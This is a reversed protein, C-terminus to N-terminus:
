ELIFYDLWKPNIPFNKIAEEYSLFVNIKNMMDEFAKVSEESPNEGLIKRKIDSADKGNKIKEILRYINNEKKIEKKEEKSKLFNFM